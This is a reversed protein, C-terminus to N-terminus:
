IAICCDISSEPSSSDSMEFGRVPSIAAEPPAELVQFDRLRKEDQADLAGQATDVPLVEHGRARLANIVQLGSAISVDREESSGGFVVAVKM